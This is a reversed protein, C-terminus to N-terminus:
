ANFSNWGYQDMYLQYDGVLDAERMLQMEQEVEGKLRVSKAVSHIYVM